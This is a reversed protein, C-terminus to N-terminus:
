DSLESELCLVSLKKTKAKDKERPVSFIVFGFCCICPLHEYNM